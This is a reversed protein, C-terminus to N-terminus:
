TCMCGNEFTIEAESYHNIKTLSSRLPIVHLADVLQQAPIHISVVDADLSRVVRDGGHCRAKKKM